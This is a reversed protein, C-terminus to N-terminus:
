YSICVGPMTCGQRYLDPNVMAVMTFSSNDLEKETACIHIYYGRSRYMVVQSGNSGVM